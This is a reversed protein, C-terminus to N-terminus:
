EDRKEQEELERARKTARDLVDKSPMGERARSRLAFITGAIFACVVLFVVIAKGMPGCRVPRGCELPADTSPALADPGRWHPLVRVSAPGENAVAIERHASKASAGSAPPPGRGSGGPLADLVKGDPMKVRVFFGGQRGDRQPCYELSM